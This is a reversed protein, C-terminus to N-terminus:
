CRLSHGLITPSGSILPAQFKQEDARVEKSNTICGLQLLSGPELSAQPSSASQALVEILPAPTVDYPLEESEDYSTDPDDEAPIALSLGCVLAAVLLLTLASLRM